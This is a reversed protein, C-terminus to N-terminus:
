SYTPPKTKTAAPAPVANPDTPNNYINLAAGALNTADSLQTNSGVQQGTQQTNLNNLGATSPTYATLLGAGASMQQDANLAGQGYATMNNANSNTGFQAMQSDYQPDGPHYGQATLTQQLHQQASANAGMSAALSNTALGPATNILSQGVATKQGAIDQASTNGAATLNAQTQSAQTPSYNKALGAGFQLLNSLQTPNKKTWDV